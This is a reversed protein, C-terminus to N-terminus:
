SSVQCLNNECEDVNNTCNEGSYGLACECKYSNLTNICKGNNHCPNNLETCIFSKIECYKGTFGAKCICAYSNISDMCTAANLCKHNICDNVNEECRRGTFGEPCRCEFRGEELVYCTGGYECPNGYCADIILECHKGHFGPACICEYSGNNLTNCKIFNLCPNVICPNCKSLVSQPQPAEKNCTFSNSPTSLIVKDKLGIPISCRAIGPEIYDRKIWDSLWRM